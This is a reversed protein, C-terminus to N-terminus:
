GMFGTIGFQGGSDPHPDHRQGDYYRNIRHPETVFPIRSEGVLRRYLKGPVRYYHALGVFATLSVLNTVILLIGIRRRM